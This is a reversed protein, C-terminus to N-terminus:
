FIVILQGLLHEINNLSRVVEIILDIKTANILIIKPIDQPQIMSHLLKLSHKHIRHMIPFLSIDKQSTLGSNIHSIKTVLTPLKNILLTIMNELRVPIIPEFEKPGFEGMAISKSMLVGEVFGTHVRHINLKSFLVRFGSLAILDFLM